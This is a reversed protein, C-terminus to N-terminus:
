LWRSSCYPLTSLKLTLYFLLPHLKSQHCSLLRINLVQVSSLCLSLAAANSIYNCLHLYYFVCLCILHCLGLRRSNPHQVSADSALTTERGAVPCRVYDVCEHQHMCFLGVCVCNFTLPNVVCLM